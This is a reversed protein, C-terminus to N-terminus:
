TDILVRFNLHRADGIGIAFKDQTAFIATSLSLLNNIAM